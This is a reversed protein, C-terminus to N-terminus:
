AADALPLELPKLTKISKAYEELEQAFREQDKFKTYARELAAAEVYGGNVKQEQLRASDNKYEEVEDKAAAIMKPLTNRLKHLNKNYTTVLKPLSNYFATLVAEVHGVWGGQDMKAEKMVPGTLTRKMEVYKDYSAKARSHLDSLASLGGQVFLIDSPTVINLLTIDATKLAELLGEAEPQLESKIRLEAANRTEIAKRKTEYMKKCTKIQQIANDAIDNITNLFGKRRAKNPVDLQNKDDPYYKNVWDSFGKKSAAIKGIALLIAAEADMKKLDSEIDTMAETANQTMEVAKAPADSELGNYVFRHKDFPNFLRFLHNLNM